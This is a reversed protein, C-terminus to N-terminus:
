SRACLYQFRARSPVVSARRGLDRRRHRAQRDAGEQQGVGAAGRAQRAPHNRRGDHHRDQAGQGRRWLRRGRRRDNPWAPTCPAHAYAARRTNSHM